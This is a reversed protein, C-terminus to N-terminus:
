PTAARKRKRLDHGVDMRMVSALGEMQEDTVVIKSIEECAKSWAGNKEGTVMIGQGSSIEEIMGKITRKEQKVVPTGLSCEHMFM